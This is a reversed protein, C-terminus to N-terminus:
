RAVEARRWGRRIETSSIDNRFEVENLSEFLDRYGSPLAVQALTRFQGGRERGAVLFRCGHRRVTELSALMREEDGDYFRKDLVREATDVGVVFVSGPLLRAKQEFLPSRTLAVTGIGGFQLARKRAEYLAIPDKAANILPLEFLAPLGTRAAAVAALELHGQHVPNFSGSLVARPGLDDGSAIQGDPRVEVLERAGREVAALLESPRYSRTLEESAELPLGPAGFVGCADATAGPVVLSVLEEEENRDRAGKELTLAYRVTGFSDRVATAVRHDGRKARDTAITATSGLGFFPDSSAPADAALTYDRALDYAAAAMLRAVRRSTFKAPMFGLLHRMSQTSYIDVAALVTRSSGGVAHLWALAQSGAGAFALVAKHPTAHIRTVLDLASEDFPM